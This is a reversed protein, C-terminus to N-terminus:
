TKTLYVNSQWYMKKQKEARMIRKILKKIFL